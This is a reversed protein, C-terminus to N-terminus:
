EDHSIRQKEKPTVCTGVAKCVLQPNELVQAATEGKEPLPSIVKWAEFSMERSTNGVSTIRAVIELFDGAYVPFLFDVSSYARFLGEDGDYAILLETAADGFLQLIRAGDVLGGAYHVDSQSMRVKFRTEM